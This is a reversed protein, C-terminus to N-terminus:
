VRFPDTDCKSLISTSNTDIFPIIIRKIESKMLIVTNVSDCVLSNCVLSNCVLQKLESVYM